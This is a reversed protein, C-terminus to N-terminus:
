SCEAAYVRDVSHRVWGLFADREGAEFALARSRPREFSRLARDVLPRFREEAEAIARGAERKSIWRGTRVYCVSRCGNLVRNDALHGVGATHERVSEAVAALLDRRAPPVLVEPLPRGALTRGSQRGIARDIAFWFGQAGAPEFDAVAPLERGTNLNLLYGAGPAGSAAFEADYVVLELGAAPCRFENHALTEALERTARGPVAPDVVVAIDIDSRGSRYDGLALSGVAGISVLGEGYVERVRGALASLYVRVEGPVGGPGDGSVARPDAAPGRGTM